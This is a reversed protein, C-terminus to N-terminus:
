EGSNEEIDVNVEQLVNYIEDFSDRAAQLDQTLQEIQKIDNEVRAELGKKEDELGLIRRKLDENEARSKELDGRLTDGTARQDTLRQSLEAVQKLITKKRNLLEEM